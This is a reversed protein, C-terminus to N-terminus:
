PDRTLASADVSARFVRELCEVHNSSSPSRFLQRFDADSLRLNLLLPLAKRLELREIVGSQDLDFKHFDEDVDDFEEFWAPPSFNIWDLGEGFAQLANQEPLCGRWKSVDAILYRSSVQAAPAAKDGGVRGVASSYQM